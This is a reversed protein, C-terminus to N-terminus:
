AQMAAQLEIIEHSSPEYERQFVNFATDVNQGEAIIGALLVPLTWERVASLAYIPVETKQWTSQIKYTVRTSCFPNTRLRVANSIDHYERMIDGLFYMDIAAREQATMCRGDIIFGSGSSCHFWFAGKRNTEKRTTRYGLRPRGWKTEALNRAWSLDFIRPTENNTDSM